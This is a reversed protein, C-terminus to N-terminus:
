GAIAPLDRPRPRRHGHRLEIIWVTRSDDDVTFLVLHNGVILQRVEYEVYADEEAKAARRPWQELSHWPM